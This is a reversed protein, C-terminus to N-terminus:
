SDARELAVLVTKLLELLHQRDRKAIGSLQASLQKFHIEIAKDAIVKGSPTLRVIVGRRDDPSDYRKVWGEKEVKDIRNTIAGSSLLSEKYIETPRLEYPAGSRRLAALLSFSEWTLGLPELWTLARTQLRASIRQTRGLIGFPWPDLDPRERRWQQLFMEISDAESM